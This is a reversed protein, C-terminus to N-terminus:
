FKRAFFLPMQLSLFSCRRALRWGEPKPHEFHVEEPAWSSGMAERILNLRMGLSLEADQRREIIQPAVVRYELRALGDESRVVSISSSQQHLPFLEVLTNLADGLTPSSLAAYGVLGLDRTDFSNGFWLGFNDNRTLRASEEFLRCYSSLSLQLTPSGVMEPSMGANGFIQDVDGKQREIFKVIGTAASALVSPDAIRGGASGASTALSEIVGVGM